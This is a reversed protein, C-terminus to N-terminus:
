KQNSLPFKRFETPLIDRYKGIGFQEDLEDYIKSKWQNIISYNRRIYYSEIDKPDELKPKADVYDPGFLEILEKIIRAQQGVHDIEGFRFSNELLLAKCGQCLEHLINMLEKSSKSKSLESFLYYYTDTKSIKKHIFDMFDNKFLNMLTKWQEIIIEDEVFSYEFSM